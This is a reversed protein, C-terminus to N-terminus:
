RVAYGNCTAWNKARDRASENHGRPYTDTVHITKRGLKVAAECGFNTGVNYTKITVTPNCNRITM